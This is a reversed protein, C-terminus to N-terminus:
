YLQFIQKLIMFNECNKILWKVYFKILNKTLTEHPFLDNFEASVKVIEFNTLDNKGFNKFYKGLNM